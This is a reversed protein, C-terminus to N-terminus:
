FTLDELGLESPLFFVVLSFEAVVTMHFAHYCELIVKLLGIRHFYCDREPGVQYDRKRFGLM